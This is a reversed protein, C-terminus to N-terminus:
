KVLSLENEFLYPYLRKAQQRFMAEMENNHLNKTSLERLKTIALHPMGEAIINIGWDPVYGGPDMYIQFDVLTHQNQNGQPILTLRIKLNNIRQLYRKEPADIHKSAFASLMIHPANGAGKDIFDVKGKIVWDRNLFPWPVYSLGYAIEYFANPHDNVSTVTYNRELSRAKKCWFVWETMLSPQSIITLVRIADNKVLGVGRFEFINSGNYKRKNIKIGDKEALVEWDSPQALICDSLLALLLFQIFLMLRM